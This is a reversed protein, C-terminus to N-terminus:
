FSQRRVSDIQLSGHEDLKIRKTLPGGANSLLVIEAITSM